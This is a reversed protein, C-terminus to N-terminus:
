NDLCYISNVILLLFLFLFGENHHEGDQDFDFIKLCHDLINVRISHIVFLGDMPEGEDTVFICKEKAKKWLTHARQAVNKYLNLEAPGYEFRIRSTKLSFEEPSSKPPSPFFVTIQIQKIM